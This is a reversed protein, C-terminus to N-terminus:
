LPLGSYLKARFEQWEAHQRENGNSQVLDCTWEDMRRLRESLVLVMNWAIKDAASPCTERLQDFAGRMLRMTGVDSLARVSASHPATALFSMEGFVGGVELVALQRPKGGNAAKVVECRGCLVIWLSQYTLGETLIEAGAAFDEFQMLNFVADLEPQDMDKFLVCRELHQVSASHPADGAATDNRSALSPADAATGPPVRNM